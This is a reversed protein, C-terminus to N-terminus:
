DDDQDIVRGGQQGSRRNFQERYRTTYVTYQETISPPQKGKFFYYLRRIVWIGLGIILVYWLVVLGIAFLAVLLGLAVVAFFLSVVISIINRLM